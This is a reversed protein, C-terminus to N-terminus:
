FIAPEQVSRIGQTPFLQPAKPANSALIIMRSGLVPVLQIWIWVKMVQLRRHSLWGDVIFMGNGGTNSTELANSESIGISARNAIAFSRRDPFGDEFTTLSSSLHEVSLISTYISTVRNGPSTSTRGRCSGGRARSYDSTVVASLTTIQVSPRTSKDCRHKPM